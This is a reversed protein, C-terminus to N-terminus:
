YPEKEKWWPLGNRTKATRSVFPPRHPRFLIVVVAVLCVVVLLLLLWEVM